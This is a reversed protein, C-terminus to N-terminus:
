AREKKRGPKGILITYVNKTEEMLAEHGTWRTRM